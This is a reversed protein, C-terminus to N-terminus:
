RVMESTTSHFDVAPPMGCTIHGFYDVIRVQLLRTAVKPSVRPAVERVFGLLADHGGSSPGGHCVFREKIKRLFVCM